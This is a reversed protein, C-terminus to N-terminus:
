AAKRSISRSRYLTGLGAALMLLSSPEPVSEPARLEFSSQYGGRYENNAVGGSGTSYVYWDSGSASAGSVDFGMESNFGDVVTTVLLSPNRAPEHQVSNWSLDSWLGLEPSTFIVSLLEDATFSDLNAGDALTFVGTAETRQVCGATCTGSWDYIVAASAPSGGVCTIL